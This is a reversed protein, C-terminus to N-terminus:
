HKEGTETRDPDHLRERLKAHTIELEVARSPDERLRFREDLLEVIELELPREIMDETDRPDSMAEGAERLGLVRAPEHSMGTDAAASCSSRNVHHPHEVDNVADNRPLRMIEPLFAPLHDIFRFLDSV